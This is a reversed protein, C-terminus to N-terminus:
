RASTERGNPAAIPPSVVLDAPLVIEYRRELEAFARTRLTDRQEAIWAARVEAEIEALDPVRAPTLAAVRVLHWGYGSEIPGEWAGPALAVVSEAFAPGFSKAIEAFSRDGYHDQFMFPDGLAATAAETKTERLRRLAASADDRAQAGRRDPSFYLHDFTARAPRAFTAAREAYWAALEERTPDRLAALDEFLFDMKQALRRKVITDGQDLGLALAERYLLEERVRSQVLVRMEDETPAPKGQAMWALAIQELDGADLEIRQADDRAFADPNWWGYLAFLAAGAALFHVLPERLAARIASV